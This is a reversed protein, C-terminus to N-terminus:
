NLQRESHQELSAENDNRYHTAGCGGVETKEPWGVIHTVSRLVVYAAVIEALATTALGSRRVATDERYVIDEFVILYIAVETLGTAAATQLHLTIPLAAKGSGRDSSPTAHMPNNPVSRAPPALRCAATNLWVVGGVGCGLSHLPLDEDRL